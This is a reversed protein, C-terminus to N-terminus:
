KSWAADKMWEIPREIEAGESPVSRVPSRPFGTLDTELIRSTGSPAPQEPPTSAPRTLSRVFTAAQDFYNNLLKHHIEVHVSLGEVQLAAIALHRHAVAPSAPLPADFGLDALLSQARWLDGERVLIDLDTMPRLGPEPYVTHSLAAGKLVLAPIGADAYASLIDRLVGTRVRNAHQHRLYLGQLKRKVAQPLQVGATRMHVYLLPALGHVEAQAAVDEWEMVHAAAQALRCYYATDGEARACLALFRYIACNQAATDSSM